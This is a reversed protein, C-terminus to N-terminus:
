PSLVRFPNRATVRQRLGNQVVKALRKPVFRRCFALGLQWRFRRTAADLSRYGCWVRRWHAQVSVEGGLDRLQELHIQVAEVALAAHGGALSDISQHLSVILPDLGWHELEDALFRYQAGLGSLEIALNLGLTEPLWREPFCAIALLYAPLDFAADLFDPDKAFAADRVEPLEIGCQRLLRRYVNPHNWEVQGAGLEDAYIRLLLRHLRQDQQAAACARQLWAGDVLIAPAFQRIGFEYEERRLRAQGRFPTYRAVEQAHVRNVWDQLGQPSYDFYAERLRARRGIRRQARRLVGEAYIGAAEAADPVRHRNLLRHFLERTELATGACGPTKSDKTKPSLRGSAVPRDGSQRETERDAWAKDQRPQELWASILALEERSFIGFMPGGFGTLRDFPRGGSPGSVYASAAFAGLFGEADFPEGAFWADLTKGGVSTQGHYGRAYYAKARLLEAVRAQLSPPHLARAQLATLYTVEQGQYCQYGASVRRWIQGADPSLALCARLAQDATEALTGLRRRREVPALGVLRWPSASGAYALTFGLVEPFYDGCLWGLELRLSALALAQMGVRPDYSFQRSAVPPLLCGHRALRGRYAAAPSAAEDAGLLELYGGFLRVVEPRHANDARALGQLWAGETLGLPAHFALLAPDDPPEACAFARASVAQWLRDPDLPFDALESEDVVPMRRERAHPQWGGQVCRLFRDREDVPAGPNAISAGNV